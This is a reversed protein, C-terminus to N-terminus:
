RCFGVFNLELVVNNAIIFADNGSGPCKKLEDVHPSDQLIVSPM